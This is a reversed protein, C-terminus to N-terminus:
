PKRPLRRRHRKGALAIMVAPEAQDLIKDVVPAGILPRKAVEIQHEAEGEVLLRVLDADRLVPSSAIVSRAIEIDDLALQSVLDLPPWDAIALKDALLRRIDHEADAVLNTFISGLLAQIAPSSVAEDSQNCLDVIALM